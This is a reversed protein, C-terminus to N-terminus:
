LFTDSNHQKKKRETIKILGPTIQLRNTALKDDISIYKHLHFLIHAYDATLSFAVLLPKGSFGSGFEFGKTAPLSLMAKGLEAELKDFVPQGLGQEFIEYNLWKRM